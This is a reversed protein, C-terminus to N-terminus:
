SCCRCYHSGCLYSFDGDGHPRDAILEYRYHELVEQEKRIVRKYKTGHREQIVSGKVAIFKETTEM